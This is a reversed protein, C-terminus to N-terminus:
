IGSGPEIKNLTLSDKKRRSLQAPINQRKVGDRRRLTLLIAGVLAVLLVLGAMQFSLLYDTYLLLGLSETNDIAPKPLTTLQPVADNTFNKWYWISFVLECLLVFGVLGGIPLYRRRQQYLNTFHIDMMMVVFLFLVAVAGVYVIVLIFSIFEAGRLMFLGSTNFFTLILFLVSHVPNRATVVIAASVVLLTAFLYFAFAQIILAPTM